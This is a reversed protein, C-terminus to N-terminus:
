LGTRQRIHEEAMLLAALTKADHFEGARAMKLAQDAPIKEIQLFEDADPQLPASVLATALFLYMHENAYGPALYFDGLLTLENAAMGIEERIERGAGTEPAEADDLVGAPLELLQGEAGLRYQRVFWIRGDDDLPVLTISDNHDVLDYTTTRDNPLQLQVQKVGFARGQFVTEQKLIKFNM